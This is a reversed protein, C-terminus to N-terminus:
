VDEYLQSRVQIKHNTREVVEPLQKVRKAVEAPEDKTDYNASILRIKSSFEPDDYKLTALVAAGSDIDDCYVFANAVKTPNLRTKRNARSLRQVATIDSMSTTTLM